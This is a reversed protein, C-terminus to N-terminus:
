PLGVCLFGEWGTAGQAWRERQALALAHAIGKGQQIHEYFALMLPASSDDLVPWLSGVVHQVQAAFCTTTLSLHEDGDYVRSQLGYCASLTLLPPLPAVEWLQDLWLDQDALALGAMRGTLADHFAHTALHLFPRTHLPPHALAQLDAWTTETHVEVPLTLRTQLATAEDLVHPLDAHQGQFTSIAIALGPRSLPSLDRAYLLELVHLSPARLPICRTVLPASALGPLPLSAWPVHNLLGHPSLLLCTDPQLLASLDPLFLLQSLALYDDPTMHGQGHALINLAQRATASVPTHWARCGTSTLFVGLLHTDTLFYDLAVWKDGWQTELTTRFSSLSFGRAAVETLPQQRERQSQLHHYSEKKEHLQRLLAANRARQVLPPATSPIRIQKQLQNIEEKLTAHASSAARASPPTSLQRILTQAKSAEMFTLLDMESGHTAAYFLAQDLFAGVQQQVYMGALHPQWFDQRLTRLAELAARYHQLALPPTHTARALGAHAKWVLEPVADQLTLAETWTANAADLRTGQWYAEALALLCSFVNATLNKERALQIAGEFLPYAEEHRNLLSLSEGLHQQASLSLIHIQHAESLALAEQFNPLAAYPQGQALLGIGLHNLAQALYAFHNQARFYAIATELLPQARSWLGLALWGQALYLTSEAQRAPEDLTHFRTFARELHHLAQQYRALHLCAEGQYLAALASMRPVHIREYDTEAQRLLNLSTVFEARLMYRRAQSVLNDARLGIIEFQAYIEGVRILKELAEQPRGVNNDVEALAALCQGIWLPLDSVEFYDIGTRFHVESTSYEGRMFHAYGLHFYVKGLEGPANLAQFIPLIEQLHTFIKDVYGQRRFLSVEFLRSRALHFRDVRDAFTQQSAQLLTQATEFEGRLLHAYALSLQCHPVWAEMGAERLGALATTLHETAEAFDNHTWPLAYKQWLSAAVWGPERLDDFSSYARSAAEAVRAPQVWENAAWALYFAAQARRRSDPTRQAALDAVRAIAWGRRPATQWATQAEAILFNFTTEDLNPLSSLSTPLDEESFARSSLQEALSLFPSM